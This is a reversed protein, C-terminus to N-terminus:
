ILYDKMLKDLVEGPPGNYRLHGNELYILRDATRIHSPRHTVMFVTSQGHVKDLMTQFAQDGERDLSDIAEDFLMVPSRRLFARALLIRAQFGTPLASSRSDGIRTMFGRDTAMIDDYVNAERAAQELEVMTSMPRALELNQAITGFFLHVDQPVYAIKNRLEFPDIQRIDTGDIRINGAQAQYLGLMLKLLTSKGAGNRGTVAVREGQGVDFSVGVLSPDGDSTYRMSVRSFSVDGGFDALEPVIARPDREPKIGMLNDIQRVSNRVQEFRALTVFASQIPALVRWVMIMIAVLAGISMGDYLVRWTGAAMVALGASIMLVHAVTSIAATARSMSLNAMAVDASLSRYRDQWVKESGTYKVARLNGVMEVLFEQRKSAAQAAEVVAKRVYTASLYAIIGYAIAMAIPIFALWGGLIGIVVVLILVFPFELMVQAMQGAFFERVSEFDKIRAVQAGITARETLSTPLHLIHEFIAVGIINDLRAGVYGLIRSRIARLILDGTLAIVVGIALFSLTELSRTAIVRDYVAMIFLPTGLALIYLLATLFMSQYILGSFRNAINRVWSTQGRQGKKDELEKFVIVEGRIPGVRREVFEDSGSDYLSVGKDTVEKLVLSPGNKPVFLCPLLREDINDLRMDKLPRSEYNLSAMANRLGVLDLIPAFHPLSEAVRRQDGRWGLFVLLPVMCRAFDSEENFRRLAVDRMAHIMKEQQAARNKLLSQALQSKTPQDSPTLDRGEYGSNSPGSSSPGSSSTGSAQSSTGAKDEM